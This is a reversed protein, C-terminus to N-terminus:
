EILILIWKKRIKEKTDDDIFNWADDLGVRNQLDDIIKDIKETAEKKDM